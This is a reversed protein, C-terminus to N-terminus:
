CTAAPVSLVCVQLGTGLHYIKLTGTQGVCYALPGELSQACALANVARQQAVITRTAQDPLRGRWGPPWASSSSSRADQDPQAHPPSAAGDARELAAAGAANPGPRADELGLEAAPQLLGEASSASGAEGGGHPPGDGATGSRGPAEIGNVAEAEPLQAAAEGGCTEARGEELRGQGATGASPEAAAPGGSASPAHPPLPATPSPQRQFLGRLTSAVAAGDASSGALSGRLQSGLQSGAAGLRGSWARLRSAAAPPQGSRQQQQQQQQPLAGSRTSGEGNPRM